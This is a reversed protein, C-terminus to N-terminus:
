SIIPGRAPPLGQTPVPARLGRGGALTPLRQERRDLRRRDSSAWTVGTAGGSPFVGTAVYGELSRSQWNSLCGNGRGGGGSPRRDHRKLLREARVRGEEPGTTGAPRFCGAGPSPERLSVAGGCLNRRGPAQGSKGPGSQRAPERGHMGATFRTLRLALGSARSREWRSPPLNSWAPGSVPDGGQQRPVGSGSLSRLGGAELRYSEVERDVKRGQSWGWSGPRGSAESVPGPRSRHSWVPRVGAPPHGTSVSGEGVPDPRSILTTLVPGDWVEGGPALGQGSTARIEGVGGRHASVHVSSIPKCRAGRALLRTLHTLVHGDLRNGSLTASTSGRREPHRRGQARCDWCLYSSLDVVRGFSHPM